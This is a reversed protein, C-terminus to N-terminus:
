CMNLIEKAYILIYNKKTPYIKNVYWYIYYFPKKTRVRVKVPDLGLDGTGVEFSSTPM